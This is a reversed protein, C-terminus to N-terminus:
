LAGEKKLPHTELCNRYSELALGYNKMEKPCISTTKKDDNEKFPPRGTQKLCRNLLKFAIEKSEKDKKCPTEFAAAGYARDLHRTLSLMAAAIIFFRM